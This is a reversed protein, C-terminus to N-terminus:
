SDTPGIIEPRYSQLAGGDDDIIYLRSCGRCTVVVRSVRLLDSVLTEGSVQSLDRDVGEEPVLLSVGHGSFLNKEVRAGCECLLSSSM